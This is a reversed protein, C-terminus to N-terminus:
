LFNPIDIFDVKLSFKAGIHEGLSKIGVKETDYHGMAIINLGMERAMEYSEEKLNGTIITKLGLGFADPLFSNGSGTIIAVSEVSDQGFNIVQANKKYTKEAREILEKFGITEKLKGGIFYKGEYFVEKEFDMKLLKTTLIENGIENHFDLPLHYNAFSIKNEKLFNLREIQYQPIPDEFYIPHHTIVLNSGLSKAEKFLKLSPSVGTAIQTIESSNSTFLGNLDEPWDDISLYDNLYKIIKELKIM